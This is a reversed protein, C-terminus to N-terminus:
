YRLANSEKSENSIYKYKKNIEEVVYYVVKEAGKKSKKMITVKDPQM